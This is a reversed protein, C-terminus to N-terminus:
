QNTNTNSNSTSISQNLSELYIQQLTQDDVQDLTEKPVGNEIFFQRIEAPTLNRLTEYTVQGAYQNANNTISGSTNTNANTQGTNGEALVDRYTQLLTADDIQNLTEEPVGANKLVERLQDASLNNLDTPAPATNTNTALANTNSVVRGCTSGAPCNPNTGAEIEAADSAGDSDSDAIYPSTKALYLEDYDSLGDRDTDKERLSELRPVSATNTLTLTQSNQNAQNTNVQFPSRLQRSIQWIGFAIAVIGLLSLLLFVKKPTALANVKKESYPDAFLKKWLNKNKDKRWFNFM